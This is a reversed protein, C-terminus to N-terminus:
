VRGEFGHSRHVFITKPCLKRLTRAALYGHAQSVHVVHYSRTRLKRLMVNRYSIPLELLEHLNPHSIRHSLEDRWIADVWCGAERLALITQYETGAAGSDPDAFHDAM